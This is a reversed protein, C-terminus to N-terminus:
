QTLRPRRGNPNTLYPSDLIAAARQGLAGALETHTGETVAHLLDTIVALEAYRGAATTLLHGLQHRIQLTAESTLLSYTHLTAADYAAPALGWGEWDLIALHPACLNAFHFDGHATTWPMGTYDSHSIGLYNPMAWNLFGPQITLRETRM